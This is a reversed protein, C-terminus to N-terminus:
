GNGGLARHDDPAAKSGGPRWRSLAAFLADPDVPKPVLDQLGADLCAQKEHAFTHATMALIPLEEASRLERIRRSAELGDMVPMQLDMLVLDYNGSTAKEVAERGDSALTPQIGMKGLIERAVLQNVKNDEVLLVRLGELGSWPVRPGESLLSGSPLPLEVWFLSGEGRRSEVGLRGGMLSTLQKVIALGLGTGGYLRTTSSDLQTFSEFLRLQDGPDIGIGTDKVEFRWLSQRSGPSPSAVTLTVSGTQTFKVANSVLNTLIQQVRLPDGKLVPAEVLPLQVVFAVGKEEAQFRAMAAVNEVLSDLRFDLVELELKGEELKSFDLIDNIVGLLVQASRQLPALYGRVRPTLNEDLALATLGVVANMPTRIEHSLNALFLSKARAAAQARDRERRYLDNLKRASIDEIMVGWRARPEDRVELPLLAASLWYTQGQDGSASVEGRWARGEKLRADLDPFLPGSHDGYALLGLSGGPQGDSLRARAQANSSVIRGDADCVLAMVAAEELISSMVRQQLWSERLHSTLSEFSQWLVALEDNRGPTLPAPPLSSRDFRYESIAGAVRGLPRAVLRGLGLILIVMLGLTSALYHIGILRFRASMRQGLIDLGSVLALTGVTQSKGLGHYSLVFQHYLPSAWEGVNHVPGAEATLGEPLVGWSALVVGSEDRVLAGSLFRVSKLATLSEKVLAQDLNWLSDELGARTATFLDELTADVEDRTGRYELAMQVGTTLTFWGVSFGFVLLFLRTSISSRRNM